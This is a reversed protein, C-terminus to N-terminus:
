RVAANPCHTVIYQYVTDFSSDAAYIQNRQFRCNLRILHKEKEARITRVDAFATYLSGGSASLISAASASPSKAQSSVFATLLELARAKDTKIQTHSIGRDDMEFLVTYLGNNAKTVILYAPISILLLIGFVLAIIGFSQLVSALGEGSFLAFPLFCLCLILASIGLARWVEFLLFFSNHMPLEYIWLITKEPTVLLDGDRPIDHLSIPNDTQVTM